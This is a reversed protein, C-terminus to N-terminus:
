KKAKKIKYVSVAVSVIVVVVVISITIFLINNTTNEVFNREEQATEMSGSSDFAVAKITHEGNTYNSTNLQWSFPKSTDNQQLQNDLYFEVYFVDESVQTNITWFGAM